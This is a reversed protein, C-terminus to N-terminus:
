ELTTKDKKKKTFYLEHGNGTELLGDEYTYTEDSFLIPTGNWDKIYIVDVAEQSVLMYYDYKFIGVFSFNDVVIDGYGIKYEADGSNEYGTESNGDYGFSSSIGSICWEGVAKYIREYDATNYYEKRLYIPDDKKLTMTADEPACITYFSEHKETSKPWVDPLAKCASFASHSIAVGSDRHFTIEALSQDYAFAKDHITRLTSPLHLKKLNNCCFFAEKEICTVGEPVSVSELNCGYFAYSKIVDGGQPIELHTIREGNLYLDWLYKFVYTGQNIREINCWAAIDQIHVKNCRFEKGVTIKKVSKPITIEQVSNAALHSSSLSTVGDPVIFHTILEDNLYLEGKDVGSCSELEVNCWEEISKIHIDVRPTYFCFAFSKVKKLSLPLTVSVVETPMCDKEITTVGEPIEVSTEAGVYKILTGNEIIFDGM